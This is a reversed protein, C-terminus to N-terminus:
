SSVVGRAVVAETGALISRVGDDYCGRRPLPWPAACRQAGRPPQPPRHTPAPARRSMASPTPPAVDLRPAPLGPANGAGAVGHPGLPRPYAWPWALEPMHQFNMGYVGVIFTLPLFITGIVTLVKMVENTRQAVTSLYLDLLSAAMERYTEVIDLLYLTHDQVDRLYVRVTECVMPNEKRLLAGVADRLPWLSRRLRLLDRRLQHLSGLVQDHQQLLQEELRELQEGVGELVPFFHDVAADVLAYLLYDTGLQHLRGHGAALRREVGALLANPREEVSVVLDPFLLVSIQVEELREGELVPIDVVLFLYGEHEETKPRQGPNLADELVLPHVKLATGLEGLVQSDLGLIRLWAKDRPLSLTEAVTRPAHREVGGQGYRFLVLDAEVGTSPLTGPSTGPPQYRKFRRRGM